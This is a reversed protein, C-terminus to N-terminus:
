PAYFVEFNGVSTATRIVPGRRAYSISNLRFFGNWSDRVHNKQALYIGGNRARVGLLYHGQDGAM